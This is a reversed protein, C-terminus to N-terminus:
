STACLCKPVVGRSACRPIPTSLGKSRAGICGQLPPSVSAHKEAMRHFGTPWDTRGEEIASLPAPAGDVQRDCRTSVYASLM